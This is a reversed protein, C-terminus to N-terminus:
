TPCLGEKRKQARWLRKYTTCRARNRKQWQRRSEAQGIRSPTMRISLVLQALTM